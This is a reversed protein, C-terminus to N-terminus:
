TEHMFVMYNQNTQLTVLVNIEDHSLASAGDTVVLNAASNIWECFGSALFAGISGGIAM